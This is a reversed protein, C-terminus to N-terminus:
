VLGPVMFLATVFWAALCILALAILDGIAFPGVSTPKEEVLSLTPLHQATRHEEHLDEAHATNPM